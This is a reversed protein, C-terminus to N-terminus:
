KERRCYILDDIWEPYARVRLTWTMVIQVVARITAQDSIADRRATEALLRLIEGVGRQCAFLPLLPDLVRAAPGVLEDRVRAHLRRNRGRGFLLFRVCGAM